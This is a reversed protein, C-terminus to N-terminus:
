AGAVEMSVYAATGDVEVRDEPREALATREEFSTALLEEAIWGAHARVAAALDGQARWAVRVRDTVKLERDKRRGQLAHLFERAVGEAELAPTIATDLRVLVGHAYESVAGEVDKPAFRVDAEALEVSEGSATTLSARGDRALRAALDAAAPEPLAALADEAPKTRPGLRPAAEKKALSARMAASAEFGRVLRLDKVNLEDLVVARHADLFDVVRADLHGTTLRSLPRRVKVGARNRAAHGLSVVTRLAEMEQELAPDRRAAVPMPWSALHVSAASGTARPSLARHLADSFFPAIPAVLRAVTALTAHLTRYGDRKGDSLAGKWFRRRNRRVYWNSLDEVVFDVIRRGARSTEYAAVDVSVDAVLRDLRSLLWRDFVDTPRWAADPEAEAYGDVNAYMAFFQYTSALTGFFRNRADELDKEDFRLPQWLPRSTLLHWRVVDAGYKAIVEDPVVINGRSKSMKKGKADLVLDTSVCSRYAPRGKYLVAVALLVYFWGRTQDVAEAIFDAPVEREVKERNEFPYHWQAFPMSGSDLWVDAVEPTRRMTGSCGPKSCRWSLDDVYPRHLDLPEPLRGAARKLEEVSGIATETGCGKADCKWLPLPTGWYRDRSIAWDVNNELWQGMRGTGTSEPYWTTQANFAVLQERFQTTKAYWSDRAYYLLPTDCRWCHPYSHVITEQRFLLGQEKLFRILDKDADKVFKGAVLGARPSPTFRGAADVPHLTPLGDRRGVAADDEGYAPAMHVIGTGDTTTVFTAPRVTFANPAAAVDYFDLLRRYRRGVLAAGKVRELVEVQGPKAKLAPLREEALWLTETKGGGEALRVKVYDVDPHVALAVNSPLTWPTTTWVLFAAPDETGDSALARFRVYVSPDQVDQFGLGVEHSSLPTGCRPCYPMVKHGRFLLGRRHWDALIAWVSEIYDNSLTKYATAFDLWYGIRRTMREWDALYTFVSERCVRNFEAVGLKEIADKGELGLAKEAAIEVPLGHTDWGAKREVLFGQMTKLRCAFDKISRSLVHHVGPRGNATPPGEYFIWPTSKARAALSARFTQEADWTRLAEEELAVLRDPRLDDRFPM